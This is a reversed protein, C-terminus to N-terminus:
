EDASHKSECCQGLAAAFATFALIFLSKITPYIDYMKKPRNVSCKPCIQAHLNSLLPPPSSSKAFINNILSKKIHFIIGLVYVSHQKFNVHDNVVQRM